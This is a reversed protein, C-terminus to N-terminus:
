RAVIKVKRKSIRVVQYNRIVTSLRGTTAVNGAADTATLQLYFTGTHAKNDSSWKGDWVATNKTGTNGTVSLTRVLTGSSNTIAIKASCVKNTYFSLTLNDYYKDRKIPYFLAYNRAFKTISLATPDLTVTQTATVTRGFMDTVTATLTHTGAGFASLDATGSYPASTKTLVVTGDFRFVVSQIGGVDTASAELLPHLGILGNSPRVIAIQPVDPDSFVTTSVSNGANGARDVAYVEIVHKGPTLNEITVGPEARGPIDFVRGQTDGTDLPIAKAGDLMVQYYAVGSLADYDKGLWTIHTRTGASVHGAMATDTTPSATLSDVTSPPTLDIGFKVVNTASEAWGNNLFGKYQLYWTGEIAQEAGPEPAPWGGPPPYAMVSTLDLTTDMHTSWTGTQPRWSRFYADPKGADILEPARRLDYIM